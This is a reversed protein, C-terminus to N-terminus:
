AVKEAAYVAFGILAGAFAGVAVGSVLNSLAQQLDRPRLLLGITGCIATGGATSVTLLDTLTPGHTLTALVAGHHGISRINGDLECACAGM